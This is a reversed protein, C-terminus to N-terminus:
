PTYYDIMATRFRNVLNTDQTVNTSGKLFWSMVSEEGNLDTAKIANKMYVFKKQNSGKNFYFRTREDIGFFVTMEYDRYQEENPAGLLGELLYALMGTRDAGIRCHFYMSYDDTTNNQVATEYANVYETMVDVIAKRALAYYTSDNTYDIEYHKVEYTKLNSPTNSNLILTGITTEESTVPESSARLDMEHNIGLKQFIALTNASSAGTGQGTWVKEGRYLKGYKITGDITGDGDTDVKIGGLDRVNRVQYFTDSPSNNITIIRREGYIYVKGNVSSDTDKIWEYVKGPIFNYLKGNDNTVYTAASGRTSNAYDYEYVTIAGTTGTDYQKPQDCLTSGTTSNKNARDDGNFNVCNYTSLNASMAADYSTHDSDTQGSAWDSINDFYVRMPDSMIDFTPTNSDLDVTVDITKTNGSEAGTLVILTRGAGTATITGNSSVTAVFLNHSSYTFEEISSANSVVINDTNNTGVITRSTGGTVNALLVSQVWNAVITVDGTPVYSITDTGLNNQFTSDTSLYWGEFYYGTRVPIPVSGIATNDAVTKGNSSITADQANVDYTVYHGSTIEYYQYNYTVGDVTEQGTVKNLSNETTIQNDTLNTAAYAGRLRGDYFNISKTSYLGHRKAQIMPITSNHAGDVSGITLNGANYIASAGNTTNTSASKFTGGTVVVTGKVIRLAGTKSGTNYSEITGGSIEITGNDDDNDVAGRETANTRIIPNGSIHLEGKNYIGQRTNTNEILGGTVYLKGGANNNIAGQSTTSRITGDHIRLTIYSDFVNQESNSIVHNGIDLTIDRKISGSNTLEFKTTRAIDKLIIITTPESTTVADFAEELTAYKVSGIQAEYNNYTWSAIYEEDDNVIHNNEIYVNYSSTHNEEDVLYWGDFLYDTKTPTPLSGVSSGHAIQRSTSDSMTGGDLNFTITHMSPTGSVWKAYFTVNDHIVRSTTVETDWNVNETYWGDFVYGSKTPETPLFGLQTDQAVSMNAVASGGDTEFRVTYMIPMGEVLRTPVEIVPRVGSNGTANGVQGQHVRFISLTSAKLSETWYNSRCGSKTPSTNELLYKYNNLEGTTGNLNQGTAARLEQITVFRAAKGSYSYTGLNTSGSVTGGEENYIQRPTSYLSVNTWQSTTPLEGAATTPGQNYPSDSYAIATAGCVDQLTGNDQHTNNYFILAANNNEDTTLYYFREISDSNVGSSNLTDITDNGNVDCDYAFGGSPTTNNGPLTGFNNTGDTHLATAKMCVLKDWQAHYTANGTIVTEENVKTGDSAATYWGNFVYGTRTPANPLEGLKDNATIHYVDSVTSGGESAFDITYVQSIAATVNVNVTKTANSQSGTITIVASGATVGTVTGSSNVTANGNNSSFTYNEMGSPGTVTINQTSGVEVTISNPSVTALSISPKWHAIANITSNVVTSSTIETNGEYWGDFIYNTKTPNAPMQSGIVSGENVQIGEVSTGGDSNFNVAYKIPAATITINVTKTANSQNGTITIVASGATVGTVTGGSNVTANGNNSSFTYAEMGGPGTVTINQTSGVEVTISSPSVTALSISSKWHAVADIKKNVITQATIQTNGEYWGDFIYDTKTPNAPMQSGIETGTAVTIPSTVVSGGNSDFTVEYDDPEEILVFRNLPVDIVPRVCNKSTDLENNNVAQIGVNNKHIRYRSITNNSNVVQEIWSTSRGGENAYGSNEFLFQLGNLGLESTPIVPDAAVSLDNMTVFRAAYVTEDNTGDHTYTTPLNPWQTATPLKKLADSYVFNNGTQQGAAGEFTTYSILVANNDITRLYYFRQNFGTGDVDCDFADGSVYHNSTVEQGYTIKEGARYGSKRCGQSTSTANCQEEHLTTAPRCIPEPTPTPPTYEVWVGEKAEVNIKFSLANNGKLSNWETTTLVLKDTEGSYNDSVIINNEDVYAKITIVGDIGTQGKTIYGVLLEGNNTIIDGNLLKYVSTDGGRNTFYDSDEDGITKGTAEEYSVVISIPITKSNVTNNVDVVKILYEVGDDYSTDGSIRVTAIGVNTTDTEVDNSNIPVFGNLSISNTQNSDFVIKGVSITSSSGIKTYNFIAYTLGGLCAVLAFIGMLSFLLSKKNNRM